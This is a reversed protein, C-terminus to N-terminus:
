IGTSLYMLGVTEAGGTIDGKSIGCGGIAGSTGGACTTSRIVVAPEAANPARHFANSALITSHGASDSEVGSNRVVYSM